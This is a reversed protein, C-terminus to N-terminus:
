RDEPKIKSIETAFLAHDDVDVPKLTPTSTAPHKGLYNDNRLNQKPRVPRYCFGGGCNPCVDKLINMVCSECFTCEFSCIMAKPNAPPLDTNCHECNPRLQLM